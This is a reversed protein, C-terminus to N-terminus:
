VCELSARNLHRYRIVRSTTGCATLGGGAAPSVATLTVLRLGRVFGDGQPQFFRLFFALCIAQSEKL